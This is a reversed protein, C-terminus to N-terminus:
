GTVDFAWHRSEGGIEESGSGRLRVQKGQTELLEVGHNHTARNINDTHNPVAIDSAMIYLHKVQMTTDNEETRVEVVMFPYRDSYRATRKGLLSMGAWPESLVSAQEEASLADPTLLFRLKGDRDPLRTTHAFEVTTDAIGYHGVTVASAEATQAESAPAPPGSSTAGGCATLLLLTALATLVINPQM